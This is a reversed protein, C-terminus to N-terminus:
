EGIVGGAPMAPPLDGAIENGNEETVLYAATRHEADAEKKGGRGGAGPVGTGAAGAAGRAGGMGARGAMAEEGAGVGAANGAGPGSGRGVGSAGSRLGSGGSAGGAGGAASGGAGFGGQGYGGALWGGSGSRSSDTGGGYGSPNQWSPSGGGPGSGGPGNYSALDTSSPPSYGPPTAYGPPTVGSQSGGPGGPPSGAPSGGGPGSVTSAHRTNGSPPGSYSRPESIGPGYTGTPGAPTGQPTATASGDSPISSAHTKTPPQYNTYAQQNGHAGVQYAAVQTATDVQSIPNIDLPNVQPPNDAVKVVSNKTSSFTQVQNGYAAQKTAAHQGIATLTANATQFAQQAQEAAQGSCGNALLTKASAVATASDTLSTNISGLTAHATQYSQTDPGEHFWSWIQKPDMGPLAGDFFIQDAAADMSQEIRQGGASDGTFVTYVGGTAWGAAHGVAKGTEDVGHVVANGADSLAKGAANLLDGFGM